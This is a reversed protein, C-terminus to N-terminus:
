CDNVRSIWRLFNLHLGLINIRNKNSKYRNPSYFFQSRTLYKLQLEGM